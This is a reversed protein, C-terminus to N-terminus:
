GEDEAEEGPLLEELSRGVRRAYSKAERILHWESLPQSEFLYFRQGATAEDDSRYDGRHLIPRIGRVWQRVDRPWRSLRGGIWVKFVDADDSDPMPTLLYLPSVDLAAALEFVDDVLVQVMSGTELKAIKSQSWGTTTM